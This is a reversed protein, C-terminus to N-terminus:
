PEPPGGTIVGPREVPVPGDFTVALSTAPRVQLRVRLFEIIVRLFALMPVALFAGLLGFIQGGGIVAVMVIVPSAGV